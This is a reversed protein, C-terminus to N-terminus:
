AYQDVYKLTSLVTEYYAIYQGQHGLHLRGVSDLGLEVVELRVARDWPYGACPLSSPIEVINNGSYQSDM